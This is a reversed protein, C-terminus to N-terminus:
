KEIAKTYAKITQISAHEWTYRAFIKNQLVNSTQQKSAREVAAFIDEPSGPNCYVAEQGFYEKAFGKDTIVVRCGMAAGELSSLGTTEFWSPLIHVKARRYYQLLDEQPLHDIFHINSAARQRCQNYYSVQNPAHKGILYLKYSTGNLAKILNIQNKIGEIRAVCLVMMPDKQVDKDPQFLENDIGNPVVIYRTNYRYSEVLLKYEADSNPLLFKTKKLIETISKRQGKFIYSLSRLKDKGSLFRATTKLWEIKDRSLFRFFIGALGGRYYKDFESYDIFITSVVFPKQTRNTHYLIDAPRTINFFHLLDYQEYDICENTLKIDACVGRVAVHKATQLVQVTDGGPASYLTSRTIFVVRM